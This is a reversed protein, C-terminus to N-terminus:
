NPLTLFERSLVYPLGSGYGFLWIRGVSLISLAMKGMKKTGTQDKREKITKTTM